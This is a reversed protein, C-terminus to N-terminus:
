FFIRLILYIVISTAAAVPLTIVWYLMIRFIIRFDVAEFGGALGVGVIGGVASHTTSVPMGLKSAVLVTTAAAFDVAFGRTNTLTTIREGMTAIVRRGMMMVGLAIGCGGAALLWFPVAVKPSTTQHMVAFFIGALPGMANAVDNAGNSFAVYCSTMVQLGRFIDEVSRLRRRRVLRRILLYGLFGTVAALGLSALISWGLGLHLRKGLPTKHVLSMGVVFFTMGVFLPSLKLATRLARRLFMIRRQIFTFLLFALICALFPSIVWSAVVGVVTWWKVAATGGLLLGVGVLSGVISHTTSVPMSFTTAAFVWLSASFLAALLALAMQTPDHGFLEPDIIGKRLTETVHAGVLAAGGFNLIAAIILAQRLTIAKAGVASAMSNAVDNAGINWAMYFGVIGAIVLIAISEASMFWEVIHVFVPWV